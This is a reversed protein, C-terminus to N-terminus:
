DDVTRSACRRGVWVEDLSVLRPTQSSAAGALLVVFAIRALSKM